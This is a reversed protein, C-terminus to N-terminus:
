NAQKVGNPKDVQGFVFGFVVSDFAFLENEIPCQPFEVGNPQKPIEKGDDAKPDKKEEDGSWVSKLSSWVSRKRKTSDPCAELKRAEM